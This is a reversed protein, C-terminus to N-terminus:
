QEGREDQRTQEQWYGDLLLEHPCFTNKYSMGGLGDIWYGLYLYEIKQTKCIHNLTLINLTGLSRWSQAPDFFFYVANLWAPAGDVIAVGLLQEGNRYRIEFCRSVSTIFFGSYYSEANSRGQPFRASLFAQLLDVNERSMVLPGIEVTVDQNKKWVRRQNRNLQFREPRLRIPVCLKCAPCRMNYMCNGNRRYGLALFHEMAMDDLKGFVGQHYVAKKDFGYPCEAAANIFFREWKEDLFTTCNHLRENEVM